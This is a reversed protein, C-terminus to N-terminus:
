ALVNLHKGQQTQMGMLVQKQAEMVGSNQGMAISYSDRASNQASAVNSVGKFPMDKVQSFQVPQMM